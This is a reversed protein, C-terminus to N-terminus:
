GVEIASNQRQLVVVRQIAGAMLALLVLCCIAETSASIWLATVAPLGARWPLVIAAVILILRCIQWTIATAQRELVQLTSSVPHLVIQLLYAVSLAHLYATASAWKAGFLLPIAWPASLNAVLIWSASIAFQLPVVQRFRRRLQVPNQSAARGAESTFVQLLSTSVMVLPRMVVRDSLFIFGAVAPSYCTAFLVSLALGGGAEDLLRGWGAYLPFRIFRRAVAAIRRWSIQRLWEPQGLVFRIFLLVTGSSQGVISGIVLGPTGVGLVGSLIQTCPGTIGQSIRTRAITGFAGARTAVAVLIYYGGLCFLGLPLLYRCPALSGLSFRILIDVPMFWAILGALGTTLALSVGCLAMLNACDVEALCIPIAIEFGLSAITTLLTLTATYVSLNGFETPTFLRTLVPSLLTSCAQGAVTGVLM